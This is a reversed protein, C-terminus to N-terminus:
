AAKGVRSEAGQVEPQTTLDMSAEAGGFGAPVADCHPADEADVVWRCVIQGGETRWSMKLRAM